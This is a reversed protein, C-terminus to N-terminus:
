RSEVCGSEVCCCCCCSALPAAGRTNFKVIRGLGLTVGLALVSKLLRGGYSLLLVAHSSEPKRVRCCVSCCASRLASFSDAAADASTDDDDDGYAHDHDHVDHDHDGVNDDGGDLNNTKTIKTM